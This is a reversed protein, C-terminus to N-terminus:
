VGVLTNLPIQFLGIVRPEHVYAAEVQGCTIGGGGNGGDGGLCRLGGGRGEDEPSVEEGAGGIM